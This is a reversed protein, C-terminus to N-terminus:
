GGYGGIIEDHTIEAVRSELSCNVLFEPNQHQTKRVRM